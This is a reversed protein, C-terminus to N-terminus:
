HSLSEDAEGIVNSNNLGQVTTVTELINSNHKDPLSPRSLNVRAAADRSVALKDKFFSFDQQETLKVTDKCSSNVEDQEEGSTVHEVTNQESSSNMVLKRKLADKSGLM